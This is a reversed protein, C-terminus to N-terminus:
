EEQREHAMPLDQASSHGVCHPLQATPLAEGMASLGSLRCSACLAWSPKGLSTEGKGRGESSYPVSVPFPKCETVARPATDVGLSFVDVFQFFSFRPSFGFLPPPLFSFAVDKPHPLALGPCQWDESCFSCLTQGQHSLSIIILTVERALFHAKDRTVEGKHVPSSLM